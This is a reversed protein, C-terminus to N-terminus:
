ARSHCSCNYTSLEQRRKMSATRKCAQGQQLRLVTSQELRAKSISGLRKLAQGAGQRSQPSAQVQLQSLSLCVTVAEALHTTM